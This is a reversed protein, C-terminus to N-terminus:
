KTVPRRCYARCTRETGDELVTALSISLALNTLSKKTFYTQIDGAGKADKYSRLWSTYKSSLKSNASIRQDLINRAGDINHFAGQFYYKEQDAAGGIFFVIAKKTAIPVTKVTSDNAATLTHTKALTATKGNPLIVQEAEM